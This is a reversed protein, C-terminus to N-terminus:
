LPSCCALLTHQPKTTATAGAATKLAVVLTISENSDGDDGDNDDYIWAVGLPVQEYVQHSVPYISYVTTRM